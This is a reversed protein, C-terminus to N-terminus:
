ESPASINLDRANVSTVGTAPLSPSTCSSTFLWTTATFNFSGNGSGCPGSASWNYVGAPFSGYLADGGGFCKQGIGSGQVEYCVQGNTTNRVYVTAMPTRPTKTRTPTATPLNPKCFVKVQAATNTKLQLKCNNALVKLKQGANLKRTITAATVNVIEVDVSSDLNTEEDVRPAVIPATNTATATATATETPTSTATPTFTATATATNTPTPTFATCAVRLSAPKVNSTSLTCGKRKVILTDNGNLTVQQAAEVMESEKTLFFSIVGLVVLAILGFRLWIMGQKHTSNRIQM